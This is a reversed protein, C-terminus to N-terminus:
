EQPGVHVSAGNPIYGASGTRKAEYRRDQSITIKLGGNPLIEWYGNIAQMNNLARVVGVDAGPAFDLGGAPHGQERDRMSTGYFTVGPYHIPTVFAAGAEQLSRVEEEILFAVLATAAMRGDDTTIMALASHATGQWADGHQTAKVLAQLAKVRHVLGSTARQDEELQELTRKM